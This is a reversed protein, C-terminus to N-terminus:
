KQNKLHKSGRVTLDIGIVELNEIKGSRSVIKAAEKGLWEILRNFEVKKGSIKWKKKDSEIGLSVLLFIGYRSSRMYQRVLQNKLRELLKTSSWKEAIKLEVPVPATIRPCNFRIDTRTKDSLEEESGITYKMRAERILRGAIENRLMSEDDVKKWLNASSNDGEEIDFKLDDLRSLALNFLDHESKPFLETEESFSALDEQKWAEFEADIAARQEALFLLRNKLFPDISKFFDSLDRLADYTSQGSIKYLLEVLSNRVRQVNDRMTVPHVGRHKLDDKPHIYKYALKILRFLIDVRRFSSFPSNLGLSREGLLHSLVISLRSEGLMTDVSSKLWATLKKLASVGDISLWM